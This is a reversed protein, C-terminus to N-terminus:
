LESFCVQVLFDADTRRIPTLNQSGSRSAVAVLRTDALPASATTRIKVLSSELLGTGTHSRDARFGVDVLILPDGHVVDQAVGEFLWTACILALAGATLQLGLYGYRMGDHRNTDGSQDIVDDSDATM